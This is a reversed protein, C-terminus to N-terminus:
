WQRLLETFPLYRVIDGRKIANKPPNDVIGDGWVTSTLVSSSQNPYLDLGGAANVRARMFEQRADPKPWDFDARMAYVPTAVHTVGMSRLVFPKVFLLMCIFSSVPNGPLGIFSAESGDARRVQGFALPKGPKMAIRWMNLRGEAEVAPKVHDEEGVSMGGSTIVLDHGVAARRMFERTKDLTDPIIGLDTVECGFTRLLSTLTYRSSNYIGGPPLPEGPMALEDGTFFIAARLRRVVPLQGIGVSAALGTDQPRLRMGAQLIESKARIDEGILRVWEGSQPKHKIIVYDGQTETQEQMVIADAGPPIPAGTFIRAATGPELATGIAGAAIRQSVRLRVEGSACDAARVAYGDMASNDHGPVDITSFQPAALVRGTAEMASITEVETIRRAGALLLERAEDVTLLGKNM